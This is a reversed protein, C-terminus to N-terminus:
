LVIAFTEPFGPFDPFNWSLGPFDPFNWPLGTASKPGYVFYALIAKFVSRLHDPYTKHYLQNNLM